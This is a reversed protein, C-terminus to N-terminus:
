KALMMKKVEKFSTGDVGLAELSYFYVGSNLGQANFDLNHTGASLIGKSISQIEEGIVNFVKLTVDADVPLAFTITTSPNFPNPYNQSLSFSTVVDYNVEIENSYEYAGNFDVQKLRYTYVGKALNKDTYSYQKAETTTGHGNVFGVTVFTQGDNARQIEFGYNNTESATQWNLTVQGNGVAATFSTLEVPVVESGHILFNCSPETLGLGTLPTWVLGGFLGSLDQIHATLGVNITGTYWNWRGQAVATATPYFGFVSLWYTGEGLVWPTDFYFNIYSANVGAAPVLTDGMVLSGPKGNDNSYIYVGYQPAIPTPSNTFGFAVISDIHWFKGSPVVFDDATNVIQQGVPLGGYLTSVIGNNTTGIITNDWLIARNDTNYSFNTQSREDLTQANLFSAFLFLVFLSLTFKKM